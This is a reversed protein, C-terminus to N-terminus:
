KGPVSQAPSNTDPLPLTHWEFILQGWALGALPNTPDGLSLPEFRAHRAERVAQQDAEASGSKALLTASVPKGDLDVLVQVVSNTLIEASPWSPLEPSVLLRRADLAGVLRLRSRDPLSPSEEVSPLKLTLEPQAITPLGETQNTVIFSEFDSGLKEKMLSLFRPPEPWVYPRFEQLPITLWASGSFSELHPLAFLTPDNLTLAKAADPGTLQLLPALDASRRPAVPQPKGLWLILGFQIALVFATWAYWRNAPWRQPEALEGTM